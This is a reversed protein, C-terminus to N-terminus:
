RGPMTAGRWGAHAALQLVFALMPVLGRLRERAIMQAFLRPWGPPPAAPAWSAIAQNLPIVALNTYLILGALCLLQAVLLHRSLGSSFFLILGLSMAASGGIAAQLLLRRGPLTLQHLEIVARGELRPLVAYYGLLDMLFMGAALGSFLLAAMWAISDPTLRNM